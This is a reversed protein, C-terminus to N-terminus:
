RQPGEELAVLLLGGASDWAPLRTVFPLADGARRIHRHHRLAAVVAADRPLEMVELGTRDRLHASLGPKQSARASLLLLRPRSAEAHARVQEALREHLATGARAFDELSILVRHERGGATLVAPCSPLGRLDRLWGPMADHLAQDSPGSHRPDYRTEAVFRHALHDRFAAEFAATGLGPVDAVALRRTGDHGDLTTLVARHRTLDLHLFRDHRPAFCASAVAADVLGRVDLGAARTVSLLLGLAAPTWFGPVALVVERGAATEARPVGGPGAQPPPGALSSCLARLHAFAVDAHSVRAPYPRGLPETDLRDWFTDCVARPRLQARAAAAAGTLLTGDEFLAIGPSEVLRQGEGLAQLGADNVELVLARM